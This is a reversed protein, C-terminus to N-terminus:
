GDREVEEEPMRKEKKQLIVLPLNFPDLPLLLVVVVIVLLVM